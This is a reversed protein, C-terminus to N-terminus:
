DHWYIQLLQSVTRQFRAQEPYFTAFFIVNQMAREQVEGQPSLLTRATARGFDNWWAAGMESFDLYSVAGVDATPMNTAAFQAPTAALLSDAPSAQAIAILGFTFLISLKLSRMSIIM